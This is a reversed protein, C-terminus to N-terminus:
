VGVVGPRQTPEANNQPKTDEIFRGFQEYLASDSKGQVDIAFETFSRQVYLAKLVTPLDSGPAPPPSIPLPKQGTDLIKWYALVVALIAGALGAAFVWYGFIFIGAFL